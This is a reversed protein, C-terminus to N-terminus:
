GGEGDRPGPKEQLYKSQLYELAEGLTEFVESFQTVWPSLSKGGGACVVYVPKGQSYAYVMESQSGASIAPEGESTRIYMLVFDSQDILLYDRAIIQSDVAEFISAVQSGDFTTHGVRIEAFALATREDLGKLTWRLEEGEVAPWASLADSISARIADEIEKALSKATTVVAREGMALPDFAIFRESVRGKFEDVEKKQEEPLGTAAFSLYVKPTSPESVLRVFLEAGQARPLLYYPIERGKLKQLSDRLFRTLWIEEERWALLEWLEFFPTGRQELGAQVKDIDDILTVVVSPDLDMVLDLDLAPFLGHHWRFAAHSNLVFVAEDPLGGARILLKDWAYRRLLDLLTKPLNLITQDDIKGLYSQIMQQGLTHYELGVGRAEALERAEGLYAGKELGVQGTFLVRVLPGVRPSSLAFSDRAAAARSTTHRSAM